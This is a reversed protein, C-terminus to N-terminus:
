RGLKCKLPKTTRVEQLIKEEAKHIPSSLASSNESYLTGLQQLKSKGVSSLCGGDSEPVNKMGNDVNASNNEQLPMVVSRSAMGAHSLHSNLKQRRM